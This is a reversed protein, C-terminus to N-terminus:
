TEVWTIIQEELSDPHVHLESVCRDKVSIGAEIVSEARGSRLPHWWELDRGEAVMRYACSTPLWKYAVSSLPTISRPPKKM